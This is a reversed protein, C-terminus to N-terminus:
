IRAIGLSNVTIQADKICLTGEIACLLSQDGEMKGAEDILDREVLHQAATLSPNNQYPRKNKRQILTYLIFITDINIALCFTVRLCFSMERSRRSFFYLGGGRDFFSLVNGAFFRPLYFAYRTM